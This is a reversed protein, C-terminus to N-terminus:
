STHVVALNFTSSSQICLYMIVKLKGFAEVSIVDDPRLINEDAEAAAATRWMCFDRGVQM